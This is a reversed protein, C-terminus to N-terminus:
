EIEPSRSETVKPWILFCFSYSHLGSVFLQITRSVKLVDAANLKRVCEAEQLLFLVIVHLQIQNYNQLRLFM